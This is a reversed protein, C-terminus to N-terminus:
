VSAHSTEQLVEKKFANADERRALRPTAIFAPPPLAGKPIVVYVKAQEPLCIDAALHIQGNEVVGEFTMVSM